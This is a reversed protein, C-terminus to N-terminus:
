SNQKIEQLRRARHYTIAFRHAEDRARLLTTRISEPMVRLSVPGHGFPSFLSADSKARHDKALGILPLPIKKLASLQSKGGDVILMDPYRWETHTLRRELIEKLSRPDDAGHVTKIKFKRYLNKDPRSGKFTVMSGVSLSGQTNSIDYCELHKKEGNYMRISTELGAMILSYHQAEKGHAACLGLHYYLCPKDVGNKCTRYPFINRIDFLFKKLERTSIFPGIATGQITKPQHTVVVKPYAEDTLVVFAYNKDDKLEANYKPQYKKILENELIFADKETRTQIFDINRAQSYFNGFNGKSAFHSQIRKKINKAKGIYLIEEKRNKFFYVGPKQPLEAIIKQLKATMPHNYLLFGEGAVM